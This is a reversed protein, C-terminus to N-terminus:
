EEVLTATWRTREPDPERCLDFVRPRDSKGAAAEVRWVDRDALDVPVSPIIPVAPAPDGGDRAVGVGAPVPLAAARGPGSWRWGGPEAWHVLVARVVHLRGRLLFQAPAGDVLAVEIPERPDPRM